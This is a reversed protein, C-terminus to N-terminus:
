IQGNSIEKLRQEFEIPMLKLIEKPTMSSLDYTLSLGQIVHIFFYGDAPVGKRPFIWKGNRTYLKETLDRVSKTRLTTVRAMLQEM